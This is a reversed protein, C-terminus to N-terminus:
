KKRIKFIYLCVGGGALVVAGISVPIIWGMPNTNNEDEVEAIVYTSFHDTEFSIQEGNITSLLKEKSGENDIYYVAVKNKDYGVPISITVKVKGNPQIKVNDNELSIDFACFKDTVGQLSETVADLEVGATIKNAILVTGEPVVNSEVEIQVEDNKSTIVVMEEQEPETTTPETPAPETPAPETPAPETPVPETPVPETPAPETSAPETPAPETPAPVKNPDVVNVTIIKEPSYFYDEKNDRGSVCCPITNLQEYKIKIKVTGEGTFTINESSNLTNTYDQNSRSVLNAGEVVEIVPRYVIEHLLSDGADYYDSYFDDKEIYPFDAVKKNVLETNTLQTTFTHSMGLDVSEPMNHVIIPEEITVIYPEGIEETKPGGFEDAYCPQVYMEGPKYFVSYFIARVVTGDDGVPYYSTDGCHLGYSFMWVNSEYGVIKDTPLNKGILFEMDCNFPGDSMEYGIKVSQPISYEFTPADETTDGDEAWVTQSTGYLSVCLTLSCICSCLVKKLLKM